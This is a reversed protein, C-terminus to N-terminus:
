VQFIKIDGIFSNAAVYLKSEAASYDTSQWELNNGLGSSRKGGVEVDGVFNSCHAFVPMSRPGFIRIDGVFGSIVIRNLGKELRGGTLNIELDGIGTSIEVSELNVGNCDIYMDGLFKSYRTKGTTGVQPQESLPVEVNVHIGGGPPPIPGATFSGATPGTGASSSGTRAEWQGFHVNAQFQDAQRRKRVILWLGLFILCLPLLIRVLQGFTFFFLDLARGLLVVGIFILILGFVIKKNSV